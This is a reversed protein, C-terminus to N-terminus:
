DHRDAIKRTDNLKAGRVVDSPRIPGVLPVRPLEGPSRGLVTVAVLAPDRHFPREHRFRPSHHAELRQIVQQGVFDGPAEVTPADVLREGLEGGPVPQRRPLRQRHVHPLSDGRPQRSADRQVCHAHLLPRM